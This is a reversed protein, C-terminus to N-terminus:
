KQKAGRNKIKEIMKDVVKDLADKTKEGTDDMGLQIAMDVAERPLKDCKRLARIMMTLQTLVDVPNGSIEVMNEDAKIM